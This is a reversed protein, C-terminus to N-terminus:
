PLAAIHEVMLQLTLNDRYDNEQLQYAVLVRNSEVPAQRFAIADVVRSGSKLVLKLHHEGVVRQSIVDFEGHFLPQPFHAGWPGAAALERAMELSLDAESLEGDTLLEPDLAEAPLLERAV